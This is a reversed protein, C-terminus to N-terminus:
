VPCSSLQSEQVPIAAVHDCRFVHGDSGTCPIMNCDSGTRRACPRDRKKHSHGPLHCLLSRLWDPNMAVGLILLDSVPEMRVVM